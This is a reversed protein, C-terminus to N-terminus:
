SKRMHKPPETGVLADVADKVRTTIGVASDKASEYQGEIADAYDSATSKLVGLYRNGQRSIKKRTISGKDPAFLVGLAVGTGLLVVGGLLMKGASMAQIGKYIFM